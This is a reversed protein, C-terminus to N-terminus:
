LNDYDEKVSLLIRITLLPFLDPITLLNEIFISTHLGSLYEQTLTKRSAVEHWLKAYHEWGSLGSNVWYVFGKYAAFGGHSFKIFVRQEDPSLKDFVFAQALSEEIVTGCHTRMKTTNSDMIAHALEHLYTCKIDLDFDPPELHREPCIFIAHYIEKCNGSRDINLACYYEEGSTCVIKKLMGKIEKNGKIYLGKAYALVSKNSTKIFGDIDSIPDSLFFDDLQEDTIYKKPEWLEDMDKASVFFVHLNELRTEIPLLTNFILSISRERLNKSFDSDSKIHWHFNRKGLNELYQSCQQPVRNGM